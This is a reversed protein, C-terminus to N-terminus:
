SEEKVLGLDSCEIELFPFAVGNPIDLFREDEILLIFVGKLPDYNAGILRATHPVGNGTTVVAGTRFVRMLMEPLLEIVKGKM